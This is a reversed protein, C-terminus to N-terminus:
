PRELVLLKEKLPLARCPRLQNENIELFPKRNAGNQEWSQIKISKAMFQITSVLKAFFETSGLQCLSVCCVWCFEVVSVVHCWGVLGALAFSESFSLGFSFRFGGSARDLHVSVHSSVPLHCFPSVDFHEVFMLCIYILFIFFVVFMLVDCWVEGFKASSSFVSLDLPSPLLRPPLRWGRASSPSASGRLVRAFSGHMKPDNESWKRIM